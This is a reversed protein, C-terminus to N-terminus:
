IKYITTSVVSLSLTLKETTLLIENTVDKKVLKASVEMRSADSQPLSFTVKEPIRMEDM